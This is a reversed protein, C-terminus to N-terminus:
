LLAGRRPATPPPLAPVRGTDMNVFEAMHKRTPETIEPGEAISYIAKRASLIRPTTRRAPLLEDIELFGDVQERGPAGEDLEDELAQVAKRAAEVKDDETKAPLLTGPPIVELLSRWGYTALLLSALVAVVIVYDEVGGLDLNKATAYVIWIEGFAGALTVSAAALMGFVTFASDGKRKKFALLVVGGATAFGVAVAAGVTALAISSEADDGLFSKVVDTTGFIGTLLAGIVTVNTAWSDKFSWDDPLNLLPSRLSLRKIEPKSPPTAPTDDDGKKEAPLPEARATETAGKRTSYLVPAGVLALFALFGPFFALYAWQPDSDSPKSATVGLTIPPASAPTATVNLVLRDDSLDCKKAVTLKPSLHQAALVTSKDFQITCDADTAAPAASLGVDSDTLNTFGLDLEWNDPDKDKLSPASNDITVPTPAASASAPAFALLLGLLPLTLWAVSSPRCSRAVGRIAATAEV